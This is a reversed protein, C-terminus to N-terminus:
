KGFSNIENINNMSLNEQEGWVYIWDDQLHHHNQVSM